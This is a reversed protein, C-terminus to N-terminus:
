LEYGAVAMEQQVATGSVTRPTCGERIAFDAAIAAAEGMAMANSIVRYSALAEHTGSICRGAVLLGEIGKPLLARYPIHYPKVKRVTISAEGPRCRHIDVGQTVTFLGDAHQRGSFLDDSSITYDGLIRRSERVGPLAAFPGYEIGSYEELARLVTVLRGNEERLAILADSLDRQAVPNEVNQHGLMNYFSNCSGRLRRLKGNTYPLVPEAGLTKRLKPLLESEIDVDDSEFGTLLQPLSLAQCRGDEPRGIEFDADGTADIVIRAPFATRGERSEAIVGTVRGADCMVDVAQTLYYASVGADTILSDFIPVVRFPNYYPHQFAGDEQIATVRERPFGGKNRYDSLWQTVHTVMGGPAAAAELLVVALGRRAATVAAAIGATGGGAVVIDATEAVPTKRKPEEIFDTM